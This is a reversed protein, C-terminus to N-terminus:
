ARDEAFLDYDGAALRVGAALLERRRADILTKLLQREAATLRRRPALPPESESPGDRSNSGFRRAVRRGQSRSERSTGRSTSRCRLILDAVLGAERESLRLQMEAYPSRHRNALRVSEAIEEDTHVYDEAPPEEGRARADLRAMTAVCEASLQSEDPVVRHM